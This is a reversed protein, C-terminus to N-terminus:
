RGEFWMLGDLDAIYLDFNEFKVLAMKFVHQGWSDSTGRRSTTYYGNLPRFQDQASVPFKRVM